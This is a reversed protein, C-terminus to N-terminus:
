CEFSNLTRSLNRCFNCQSANSAIFIPCQNHRWKTESERYGVSTNGHIGFGTECGRCVPTENVLSIINKLDQLPTIEDSTKGLNNLHIPEGAVRVRVIMNEYVVIEKVYDTLIEQGHYKAVIKTLLICSTNDFSFSQKNWSILIKINSTELEKM